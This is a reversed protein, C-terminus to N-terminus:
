TAQSYTEEEEFPSNRYLKLECKEAVIRYVVDAVEFRYYFSGDPEHVLHFCSPDPSKRKHTNIAKSISKVSYFAMEFPLPKTYARNKSASDAGLYGVLSWNVGDYKLQRVKILHSNVIYGVSTEVPVLKSM